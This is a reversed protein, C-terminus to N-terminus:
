ATESVDLARLRAYEAKSLHKYARPVPVERLPRGNAGLVIIPENPVAKARNFTKNYLPKESKIAVWEAQEAEHRLDFWELEIRAVDGFWASKEAHKGTRSMVSM